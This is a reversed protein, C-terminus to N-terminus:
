HWKYLVIANEDIMDLFPDSLILNPTAFILDIKQDGLKQKLDVLIMLKKELAHEYTLTNPFVVLLDIDGGKAQDNVRSGFLKLEANSLILHANLVDIIDSLAESSLRM